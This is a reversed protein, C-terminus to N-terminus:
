RGSLRTNDSWTEEFVAKLQGLQTTKTVLTRYSVYSAGSLRAFVHVESCSECEVKPDGMGIKLEPLTHQMVGLVKNIM